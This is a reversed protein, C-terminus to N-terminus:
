TICKNNCAFACRSSVRDKIQFLFKFEKKRKRVRRTSVTYKNMKSVKEIENNRKYKKIGIDNRENM